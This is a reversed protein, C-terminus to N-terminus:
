EGASRPRGVFWAQSSIWGGSFGFPSFAVRDLALHKEVERRLARWNFGYHSHYQAGPPGYRPRELRTDAGAFIMRLANGLTYREYYKYDSLGRWAAATRAAGKILFSPGIEIPVSIIVLGDPACCRVLDALVREAEDPLCHELTEMCTVLGYEGAHEPAALAGTHLFRIGPLHGFRVRNDALHDEAIDAGTAEPFWDAVMALFQGDGCGYDLLTRGRSGAALRRAVKFRAQHGFRIAWSRCGLQKEAYCGPTVDMM